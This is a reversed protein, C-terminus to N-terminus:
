QRCGRNPHTDLMTRVHSALQEFARDRIPLDGAFAMFGHVATEFAIVEVPVAAGRLRAVYALGEDYLPDQGALLLLTPPTAHFDSARLPSARPDKRAEPDALYQHWYWKMEELALCGPPYARMYSERTMDHDLIPYVLLHCAVNARSRTDRQAAVLCGGASEGALVISRGQALADSAWEVAVAADDVAAPFPHEPALRYDVCLVDAGVAAALRRAVPECSDLDGSVWGGGHFYVVLTSATPVPRYLRMSFPLGTTAADLQEVSTMAPLGGTVAARTRARARVQAPTLEFVRKQGAPRTEALYRRIDPDIVALDAM